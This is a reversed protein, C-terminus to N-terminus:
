FLKWSQGDIYARLRALEDCEARYGGWTDFMVTDAVDAELKALRRHVRSM